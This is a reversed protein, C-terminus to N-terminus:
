EETEEPGEDESIEAEEPEAEEVVSDDADIAVGTIEEFTEAFKDKPM